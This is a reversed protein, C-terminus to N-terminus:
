CKEAEGGLNTLYIGGGASNPEEKVFRFVKYLEGRHNQVWVSVFKGGYRQEIKERARVLRRYLANYKKADSGSSAFRRGFFYEAVDFNSHEFNPRSIIFNILTEQDPIRSKIEVDEEASVKEAKYGGAVLKEILEKIEEISGESEFEMNGIRFKLKVM